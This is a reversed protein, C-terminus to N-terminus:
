CNDLFHFLCQTGHHQCHMLEFHNNSSNRRTFNIIKSSDPITWRALTSTIFVISVLHDPNHGGHLSVLLIVHAATPCM